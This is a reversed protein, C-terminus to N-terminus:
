NGFLLQQVKALRLLLWNLAGKLILTDETCWALNEQEYYPKSPLCMTNYTTSYHAILCEGQGITSSLRIQDKSIIMKKNYTAPPTARGFSTEHKSSSLQLEIMCEYDIHSKLPFMM